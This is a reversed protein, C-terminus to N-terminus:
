EVRGCRYGNGDRVIAFRTNHRKSYNSASARIRAIQQFAPEPIFFSQGVKMQSFPYKQSKHRNNSRPVPKNEVKFESQEEQGNVHIKM